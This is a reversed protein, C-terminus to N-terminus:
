FRNKLTLKKLSLEKRFGHFQTQLKIISPTLIRLVHFKDAVIQANPFFERVFKRYSSSMDM